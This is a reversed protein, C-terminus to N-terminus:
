KVPPKPLLKTVIVLLVVVVLALTAWFLVGGQTIRMQALWARHLAKAPAPALQAVQRPATLLREAVLSLDYHPAAIDTQGYALAFGDREATKFVLRAVPYTATVHDLAIAPNDGNDTELWLTDTALREPVDLVLTAPEGPEARRRWTATALTVNLTGGSPAARRETLRLQREFLPTSSKLTLRSLPLGAHPLAIKWVSVTPRKPDPADTVAIAPLTRHLGPRELVYPVQNGARLVRLDALDSRAGALATPDLELEQVGAATLNMARQVTWGSTDLPAGTLPIDPLSPAALSQSPRYDPMAESASPAVAVARARRLEGAFAALDYRPARAQPNGSLLFHRGASAAVFALSVPWHEVRAASIQLPPSDGNHVHVILERTAPTFDVPVDFRARAPAGDLAVRYLTSIGLQRERPTGDSADRVAVIVRRMFLPDACEFVLAALPLHAAPLDLTLVTEDAFEERRVLRADLSTRPLEAARAPLRTFSAGTFEVRRSREDDLTVRVRSVELGLDLRLNEAGFQRFLPVAPGLSEWHEGDTSVDVHAAKLFYPASTELELTAIREAPAFALTLQTQRHNATQAFASVRQPSRAVALDLNAADRGRELSFALENGAADIVRLDSLNAQARDFTEPPLAVRVLGPAPVDLPQRQPWETPVLAARVALALLLLTSAAAKIRAPRRLKKM